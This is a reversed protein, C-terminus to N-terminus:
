LFMSAFCAFVVRILLLIVSMAFVIALLTFFLYIGGGCRYCILIYRVSSVNFICTTLLFLCVLLIPEYDLVFSTFLYLM